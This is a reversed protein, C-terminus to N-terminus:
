PWGSHWEHICTLGGTEGVSIRYGEPINFYPRYDLLVETIIVEATGVNTFEATIYNWDEYFEFDSLALKEEVTLDQVLITGTMFSTAVILYIAM